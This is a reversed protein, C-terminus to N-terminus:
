PMVVAVTRLQTIDAAPVVTASQFLDGSRATVQQITGIVLDSPILQETGNTVVTQGASVSDHKPLLELRLSLGREGKLIGPSHQDNGIRAGFVSQGDTILLVVSTSQHATIIKGIVSGRESVVVQGTMVQDSTGRDIVVSQIGPDASRGIIHSVVLRHQSQQQYAAVAEASQVSALAEQATHLQQTVEELQQRVSNRERLLASNSPRLRLQNGIWTAGSSIPVLVVRLGSGLWGRVGALMLIGILVPLVFWWLSTSRRVAM